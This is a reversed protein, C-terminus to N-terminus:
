YSNASHTVNLSSGTCSDAIFANLGDGLGSSGYCGIATYNAFIGYGAGISRGYCNQATAADLGDGDGDSLGNCNQAINDANIGYGDGSSIGSCNVAINRADIGDSDGSCQGRCDSVQMGSIATNGCDIASCNKVTLAQIGEGGMTQVMCSEVVSSGSNNGSGVGSKGAINVVQIGTAACGVVSIRSVLINLNESGKENLLIGNAFGTGSYDGSGDNTVGSQIHGDLITIGSANALSIATGAPAPSTSSITFGNLDLTVNDARISIGAGSTVLNTTLYYSGPQNIIFPITSIPIRPEIQDLSKMTPAPADPPTLSGQASATSIRFNIAFFLSLVLWIISPRLKVKM